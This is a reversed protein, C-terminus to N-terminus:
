ECAGDSMERVGDGIGKWILLVVGGWEIERTMEAFM